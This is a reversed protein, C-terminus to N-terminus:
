SKISIGMYIIMLLMMFMGIFVLLEYHEYAILVVAIVIAAVGLTLLASRADAKM